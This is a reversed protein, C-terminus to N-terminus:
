IYLLYIIGTIQNIRKQNRNNNNLKIKCCIKIIEELYQKLESEQM